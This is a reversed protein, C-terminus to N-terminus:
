HRVKVVLIEKLLKMFMNYKLVITQQKVDCNEFQSCQRLRGVFRKEYADKYGYPANHMRETRNMNAIIEIAAHARAATYQM